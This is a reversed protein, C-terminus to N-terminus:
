KLGYKKLSNLSILLISILNQFINLYNFKKNIKWLNIINFIKKSSRSDSIIRYVASAKAFKKFPMKSKRMLDCKFVYDEMLDLNRFKINNLYKKELIMTSTNISSNYIFNKFYFTENIKTAKLFKQINNNQIMPIYDTFTFFYKNKKMFNIQLKLKNKTWYDDSDLFAIYKSKAKKLILNRCYSPGKNKKLYFIKIKSKKKFKKLVEASNDNSNDDVVYLKWNTYTQNLVSQIAKDVFKGKNYNPMIIDISDKANFM